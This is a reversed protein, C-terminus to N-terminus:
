SIVGVDEAQLGVGEAVEEDDGLAVLVAQRIFREADAVYLFRTSGKPPV